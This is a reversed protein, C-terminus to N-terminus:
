TEILGNPNSSAQASRLRVEDARLEELHGRILDFADAYPDDWGPIGFETTINNAWAVYADNIERTDREEERAEDLQRRLDAVEDRAEASLRAAENARLEAAVYRNMLFDLLTRVADLRQKLLGAARTNISM